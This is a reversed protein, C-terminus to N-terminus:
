GMARMVAAMGMLIKETQGMLTLAEFKDPLPFASSGVGPGPNM